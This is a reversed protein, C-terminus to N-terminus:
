YSGASHYPPPSSAACGGGTQTLSESRELSELWTTMESLVRASFEGPYRMRGPTSLSHDHGKLVTVRVRTNGNRAAAEAIEFSQEVTVKEDRDGVLLLMPIAVRAAAPLPDYTLFHQYWRDSASREEHEARLFAHRARDSAFRDTEPAGRPRQHQWAMVRAGTWSPTALGIVRAVDSSRSAVLMAIAAGESHGILVFGAKGLPGDDRLSGMIAEVDTALLATTATAAYNGTSRGTGREDYLVVAYGLDVLAKRIRHFAVNGGRGNGADTSYDRQHAGAGSILIAVPRDCRHDPLTLEYAIRTGDRAVAVRQQPSQLPSPGVIWAILLLFSVPM